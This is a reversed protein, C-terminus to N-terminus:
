KLMIRWTGVEFARLEIQFSNDKVEVEDGEDDELLNCRRVGKVGRKGFEGLEVRGRARGGLSDYLRLIVSKGQRVPLDGRSVDEDDEGRKITDLIIAPASDASMRISSMLAAISAPSAHRYLYSPLTTYPFLSSPQAASRMKRGEEIGLEDVSSLLSRQPTAIPNNFEVGARVTRHDLPGSHPLIAYKFHHTGMDAHADPAKPARLLSLRM